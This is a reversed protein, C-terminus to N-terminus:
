ESSEKGQLTLQAWIPSESEDGNQNVLKIEHKAKIEMDVTVDEWESNKNSRVQWAADNKM